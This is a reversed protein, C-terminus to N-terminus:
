RDCFLVGAKAKDERRNEHITITVAAADVKLVEVVLDTMRRVLERKQDLTRGEAMEITLEPM